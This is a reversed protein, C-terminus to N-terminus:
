ESSRQATIREVAQLIRHAAVAAPRGEVEDPEFPSGPYRTLVSYPQLKECDERLDDLEYGAAECCGLLASLDHTRPVIEGRGM